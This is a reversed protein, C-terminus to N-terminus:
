QSAEQQWAALRAIFDEDLGAGERAAANLEHGRARDPSNYGTLNEIFADFQSPAHPAFQSLWRVGFGVHKIEDETIQDMLAACAEDGVARFHAAFAPAHDLNAQEFTLNMACVWQAPTELSPAVRWFHDNVPLDGFRAGLAEIREMYLRLHRQEEQILWGLGRRFAPPTDPYALLAWAMLELAMLEHNAFTHLCRVRMAPDRLSSPHPLPKCEKRPAIQLREPRAPERWPRAPGPDEDTLAAVGGAPFVFRAELTPTFLITEALERLEM